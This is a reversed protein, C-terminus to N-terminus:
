LKRLTLSFVHTHLFKSDIQRSLSNLLDPHIKCPGSYTTPEVKEIVFGHAATLELYKPLLVRNMFCKPDNLRAFARNSYRLHYLARKENLRRLVPFRAFFQYTHDSLDVTHYSIGGPKLLRQSHRFFNDLDEVHELVTYSCILDIGSSHADEVDKLSRYAIISKLVDERGGAGQFRTIQELANQKELIKPEALLVRDAGARLMSLATYIQLGCGAELVVKGKFELGEKLYHDFISTYTEPKEYRDRRRFLRYSLWNYASPSLSKRILKWIIDFLM